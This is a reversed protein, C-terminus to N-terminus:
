AQNACARSGIRVCGGSGGEDPPVNERGTGGSSAPDPPTGRARGVWDLAARLRKSM